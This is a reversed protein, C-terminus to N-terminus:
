KRSNEARPGKQILSINVIKKIYNLVHPIQIVQKSKHIESM